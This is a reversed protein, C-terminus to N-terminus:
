LKEHNSFFKKKEIQVTLDCFKFEWLISNLLEQENINDEIKVHLSGYISDSNLTWFHVNHVQIVGEMKKIKELNQQIQQDYCQPSRLLLISLSHTILPYAAYVIIVSIFLSCIPDAIYCEYYNIIWTSIIVSISSLTDAVMHLFIGHVNENFDHSHEHDHSHSHSSHGGQYRFVIMGAINILLGIVSLSLLRSGNVVPPDLSRHISEFFIYIGTFVLLLGNLFGSLVQYRGYGFTYSQSPKWKSMYSGYIGIILATCDFLMHISDSILGLSNSIIGYILEVFMFLLNIILFIFMVRSESNHLIFKISQYPNFPFLSGLIFPFSIISYLNPINLIYVLIGNFSQQSIEPDMLDIFHPFSYLFIGYIFLYFFKSFTISTDNLYLINYLIFIILLLLSSSLFSVYNQQNFKKQYYKRTISLGSSIFLSLGAFYFKGQGFKNISIIFYGIVLYILSLKTKPPKEWAM